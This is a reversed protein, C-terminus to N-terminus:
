PRGELFEKLIELEKRLQAVMQMHELLSDQTAKFLDWDAGLIYMKQNKLLQENERELREMRARMLRAEQELDGLLLDLEREKEQM